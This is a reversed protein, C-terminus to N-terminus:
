LASATTHPCTHHIHIRVVVKEHGRWAAIALPAVGHADRDRTAFAAGAVRRLADVGDVDGRWACAHALSRGARDRCSTAVAAAAADRADGDDRRRWAGDGDWLAEVDLEVVRRGASSERRRM